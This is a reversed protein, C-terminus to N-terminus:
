FLEESFKMKRKKVLYKKVISRLLLIREYFISKRDEIHRLMRLKWLTCAKKKNEKKTDVMESVHEGSKRKRGSVVKKQLYKYFYIGSKNSKHYVNRIGNEWVM